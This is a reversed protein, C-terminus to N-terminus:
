KSLISMQSGYTFADVPISRVTSISDDSGSVPAMPNAKHLGYTVATPALKVEKFTVLIHFTVAVIYAL